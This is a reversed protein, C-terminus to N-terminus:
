SFEREVDGQEKKRLPPLIGQGQFIVFITRYMHDLAIEMAQLSRLNKDIYLAISLFECVHICVPNSLDSTM